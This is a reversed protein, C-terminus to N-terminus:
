ELEMVIHTKKMGLHKLPKEWGPRAHVEFKNSGVEKSWSYLTKVLIEFWDQFGEGACALVVCTKGADNSIHTLACARVAGAITVVWCQTDETMISQIISELTNAGSSREVFSDFHWRLRDFWEPFDKKTIALVIPASNGM